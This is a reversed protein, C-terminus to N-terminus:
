NFTVIPKDFRLDVVSPLTGKIRFGELLTQLTAATSVMDADQTIITNTKGIYATISADDRKEISGIGWRADLHKILLLSQQVMRDTVKQGVHVADGDLIIRPLVRSSDADPIVVGDYDVTVTQSGRTIRAVGDRILPEIVLTHPFKKHIRIDRLMPNEQLLQIRLKESPFFLLNKPLAKEDILLQVDSGAVEISRIDLMRNVVLTVIIGAGVVFVIWAAIRGFKRIIIKGYM